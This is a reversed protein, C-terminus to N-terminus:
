NEWLEFDDLPPPEPRYEEEIVTQRRAKFDSLSMPEVAEFKRGATEV